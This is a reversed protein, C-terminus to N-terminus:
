RKLIMEDLNLLANGVITMAAAETVDIKPPLEGLPVSALKEADDHRDDLHAHADRYLITLAGLEDARPPRALCLRFAFTIRDEVVDAHGIARRALAQAAEIFVPDNLTVLSQLPTNSSTRRVMCVERNPADFTAM